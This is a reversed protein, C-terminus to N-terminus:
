ALLTNLEDYSLTNRGLSKKMCRKVSQILREWFGGWWPAKEVIFRWSVGNIALYRLVEKSRAIKVIEKSSGQFTKGNDSMLTAPLGRRSTFRRFALLFSEVTLNPTLDLHVARTSTCTFLCVYCKNNDSETTSNGRVFLPGAFDVGTHSFPPDESICISPLDSCQLKLIAPRRTKSVYRLTEVHAESGTEGTSDM